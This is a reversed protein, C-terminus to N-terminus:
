WAPALDGRCCAALRAELLRREPETCPLQLADQLARAAADHDGLQWMLQARTALRLGYAGLAGNAELADVEALAARPGHVKAVAVARNLRVVEDDRLTSLRDYEALIRPWDTDAYAVACAHLSAIAAEVHYASMCSGGLSSKFHLMGAGIWRQDWLRRDQEALTLLRGTADSRAPIRAGQLLMLALLAHAAGSATRPHSVLLQALRVAEHVLDVRVLDAGGHARYGENFLLYLVDLVAGQRAPLEELTPMEFRAGEAALRAKARTLRQAVTAEKALLAAAIAANGLGCVSKLVLASRAEQPLSPHACLFMMRLTDDDVVDDDESEHVRPQPAHAGDIAWDGLETAVVEGLARRRLSDIALNKAVRQLWREPERPLGEPHWARLARVFAEQVVDEALELHQAGLARVLRAVMASYSRRALHDVEREFGPRDDTDRM